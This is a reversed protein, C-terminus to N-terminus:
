QGIVGVLRRRSDHGRMLGLSAGGTRSERIPSPPKAAVRSNRNRNGILQHFPTGVNQYTFYGQGVIATGVSDHAYYPQTATLTDGHYQYGINDITWGALLTIVPQGTSDSWVGFSTDAHAFVQFNWNAPPHVISIREDRFNHYDIQVVTSDTNLSIISSDLIFNIVRTSDVTVVSDETGGYNFPLPNGNVRVLRYRARPAGGNTGGVNGGGGAGNPGLFSLCNSWNNLNQDGQPV